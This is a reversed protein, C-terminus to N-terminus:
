LFIHKAVFVVPPIFGCVVPLLLALFPVLSIYFNSEACLAAFTLDALEVAAICFKFAPTIAGKYCERKYPLSLRM